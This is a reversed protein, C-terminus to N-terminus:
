IMLRIIYWLISCFVSNYSKLLYIYSYRSIDLLAYLNVRVVSVVMWMSMSGMSWKRCYLNTLDYPFNKTVNARLCHANIFRRFPAFWPPQGFPPHLCKPIANERRSRLKQKIADVTMTRRIRPVSIRIKRPSRLYLITPPGPTTM